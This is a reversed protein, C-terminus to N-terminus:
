REFAGLDCTDPNRSEGRQDTTPCSEGLDIAPSEELLPLTETFGVLDELTEGLLPDEHIYAEGCLDGDVVPFVINREGKIPNNCHSNALTEEGNRAFISNEARVLGKDCFLCDAGEGARNNALTCNILSVSAEGCSIAGGWLAARNNFFTVNSFEAPGRGMWVAGGQGATVNDVFLSQSVFTHADFRMAGALGPEATTVENERFECLHVVLQDTGYAFLFAAGSSAKATNRLFRTGCLSIHGGSTGHEADPEVYAGDTFVAGGSDDLAENNEFACNV